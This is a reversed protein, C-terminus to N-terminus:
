REETKPPGMFINVAGCGGPDQLQFLTYDNGQRSTTKKVATAAGQLKVVQRDFNSPKVVLSCVGLEAARPIAASTLLALSAAGCIVKGHRM